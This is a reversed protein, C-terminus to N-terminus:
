IWPLFHAVPLIEEIPPGALSNRADPVHSGQRLKSAERIHLFLITGNQGKDCYNSDSPESALRLPM